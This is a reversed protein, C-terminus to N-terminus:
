KVEINGLDITQVEDNFSISIGIGGVSSADLILNYCTAEELGDFTKPAFDYGAGAQNTMKGSLSFKYADIFVAKGSVKDSFTFENSAASTLTFEYTPFYNRFSDTFSVNIICNTLTAPVSVETTQQERISFGATGGLCPKDPGESLIDGYSVSVSYEGSALPTEPNWESIKGKWVSQGISNIIQADFASEQPLATYNSIHSRTQVSIEGPEIRLKLRGRQTTKDRSCSAPLLGIACSLIVALARTHTIRM